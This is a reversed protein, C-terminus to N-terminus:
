PDQLPESSIDPAPDGAQARFTRYAEWGITAETFATSQAASLCTSYDTVESFYRQFDAEIEAKYKLTLEENNPVLPQVPETCQHAYTGATAVPSFLMTLIFASLWASTQDILSM